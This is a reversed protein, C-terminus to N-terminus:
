CLIELILILVAALLATLPLLRNEKKIANNRIIRPLEGSFGRNIMAAQVRESQEYSRLLLTLLIDASIIIHRLGKTLSFGRIRAATMLQGLDKIYLNIYRWTSLLILIFKGPIGLNKLATMLTSSDTDGILIALLSFITLSRIAITALLSLRETFVMAPTLLIFPAMLILFVLPTRLTSLIKGPKQTGLIMLLIASAPGAALAPFKETFAYLFILVTFSVIKLEM